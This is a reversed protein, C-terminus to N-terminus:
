YEPVDASFHEVCFGNHLSKSYDGSFMWPPSKKYLLETMLNTDDSLM